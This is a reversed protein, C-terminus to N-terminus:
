RCLGLYVYRYLGLNMNYCVFGLYMNYLRLDLYM